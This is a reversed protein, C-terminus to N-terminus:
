NKEANWQILKMQWNHDESAVCGIWEQGLAFHQCELTDIFTKMHDLGLGLVKARAELKTWASILLRSRDLGQASDIVAQDEAPLMALMSEILAASSCSEVDIGIRRDLALAIVCCNDRRAMNFNLGNSQRQSLYPRGRPEYRLVLRGPDFGTYQGLVGRLLARSVSFRLGDLERGYSIARAIEDNSLFPWVSQKSRCNLPLVHVLVQGAEIGDICEPPTVGCTQWISTQIKFM